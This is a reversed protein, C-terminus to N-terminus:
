PLSQVGTLFLGTSEYIQCNHAAWLKEDLMFISFVIIARRFHVIPEM